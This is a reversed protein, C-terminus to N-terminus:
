DRQWSVDLHTEGASYSYHATGDYAAELAHAIRGALHTGTTNVRLSGDAGEEIDILRELAHEQREQQEAHRILGLIEERHAQLFAGSLSVCGAADHEAIRRCAPCIISQEPSDAAAQWSWRGAAFHAGCQPCSAHGSLHRHKMDRDHHQPQFLTEHHGQQHKDM